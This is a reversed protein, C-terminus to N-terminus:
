RVSSITELMPEAVVETDLTAESNTERVAADSVPLALRDFAASLIAWIETWDRLRSSAFSATASIAEFVFRRASVADSCDLVMPLSNVRM